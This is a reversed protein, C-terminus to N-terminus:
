DFRLMGDFMTGVRNAAKVNMRRGAGWCWLVCCFLMVVVVSTFSLVVVVSTPPLKITADSSTKVYLALQRPNTLLSPDSIPQNAFIQAPVPLSPITHEVPSVVVIDFTYTTQLLKRKHNLSTSKESSSDMMQSYDDLHGM